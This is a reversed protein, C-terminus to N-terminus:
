LGPLREGGKGRGGEVSGDDLSITKRIAQPRGGTDPPMTQAEPGAALVERGLCVPLSLQPRM